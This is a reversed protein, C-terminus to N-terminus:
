RLSVAGPSANPGLLLRKKAKRLDTHRVSIGRSRTGQVSLFPNAGNPVGINDLTTQRGDVIDVVPWHAPTVKVNIFSISDADVCHIGKASEITIKSFTLDSAPREPLGLVEIAYSKGFSCSIDSFHINRITPTTETVPQAPFRMGTYLMNIHLAEQQITDASLHDFWLNEIVGGRGRATKIRVIRETGNFTCDTAYVNWVGGSTESGIVIGGHGQLGRCHRVVVNATPKNVRLGDRDRGSKIAICDDGTDFECYEVLVNTCSSPDVGDGNPTHGYEGVTKIRVGRVIVSDCYTPTITWFAGYLFTVGEVLVNRCNMPQFFAPRLYLGNTGDFVRERVPVNKNAMEVITAESGKNSQKWEWWPKGQGSLTGEGTIGINRKGDAYIFASFKYCETDEHRSFVAPLYDKADQSFLLEAGKSLYLNINNELHIAGTLWRGKPVVIRGGGAAAAAEITKRIAETNKVTGGEVAGFSRIDFDGPPFLPRRFEFTGVPTMAPAIEEPIRDVGSSQCRIVSGASSILIIAVGVPRVVFTKWWRLSSLAWGSGCLVM